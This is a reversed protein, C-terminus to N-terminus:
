DERARPTVRRTFAKLHFLWFDLTQVKRLHFEKVKSLQCQLEPLLAEIYNALEGSKRCETLRMYSPLTSNDARKEIREARFLSTMIWAHTVLYSLMLIAEAKSEVYQKAELFIVVWRKILIQASEDRVFPHPHRGPSIELIEPYHEYFRQFMCGTACTLFYITRESLRGQRALYDLTLDIAEADALLERAQAALNPRLKEQQSGLTIPDAICEAAPEEMEAWLWEGHIQSLEERFKFHGQVAHGVEHFFTWVIMLEFMILQCRIEHASPSVGNFAARDSNANLEAFAEKFAPLLDTEHAVPCGEDIRSRIKRYDVDTHLLDLVRTEKAIRNNVLPFALADGYIAWVLAYSFEVCPNLPSATNVKVKANPAGFYFDFSLRGGHKLFINENVWDVLSEILGKALPELFGKDLYSLEQVLRSKKMDDIQSM